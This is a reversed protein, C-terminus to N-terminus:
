AMRELNDMMGYMRNIGKRLNGDGMGKVADRTMVFEGAMLMAPVDDKTGSGEAPDIGGNRRPFYTSGGDKFNRMPMFPRGALEGLASGIGAIPTVPRRPGTRDLPTVQRNVVPSIPGTTNSFTRTDNFRPFNDVVPPNYIARVEEVPPRKPDGHTTPVNRNFLDKFKTNSIGPQGVFGGGTVPRNFRLQDIQGTTYNGLQSEMPRGFNDFGDGDPDSPMYSPTIYGLTNMDGLSLNSTDIQEAPAQNFPSGGAGVDAALNSYFDNLNSNLGNGIRNVFSLGGGIGANIVNNVGQNTDTVGLTLPGRQVPGQPSTEGIALPGGGLSNNLGGFGATMGGGLNGLMNSTGTLQGLQEAMAASARSLQRLSPVAGGEAYKIGGIKGGPGGAGFPRREFSGQAPGEEEDSSLLQALVGAAVGEGLKTNLVKFLLNDSGVGLGELLKASMTDAAVPAVASAAGSGAGGRVTDQVAKKAMQDFSVRGSSGVPLKVGSKTLQEAGAQQGPFMAGIGAGLAASLLADKPKGGMVVSGVGSALARALLPNMGPALGPALAGLAVPAVTKILSKLNLGM